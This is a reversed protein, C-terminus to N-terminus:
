YATITQNLRTACSFMWALVPFGDVKKAVVALIYGLKGNSYIIEPVPAAM